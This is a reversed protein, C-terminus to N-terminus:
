AKRGKANKGNAPQEMATIMMVIAEVLMLLQLLWGCQSKHVSYLHIIFYMSFEKFCRYSHIKKSKTPM